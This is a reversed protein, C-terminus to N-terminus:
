ETEIGSKTVGRPCDERSAVTRMEWTSVLFHVSMLYLDTLLHHTGKVICSDCPTTIRFSDHITPDLGGKLRRKVQRLWSSGGKVYLEL